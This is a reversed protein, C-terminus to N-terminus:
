MLQLILKKKDDDTLGKGDLLHFVMASRNSKRGYSEFVKEAQKNRPLNLLQNQIFREMGGRVDDIRESADCIKSLHPRAYQAIEWDYKTALHDYFDQYNPCNLELWIDVVKDFTSVDGKYYHLKLYRASKLKVIYWVGDVRYYWCVGEYGEFKAVAERMEELTSFSYRQPRSMNLKEAWRDIVDQPFISYDGHYIGGILWLKPEDGYNLVVKNNPSYWECLLSVDENDLVFQFLEPHRAKLIAIERGNNLTLEANVTGRTRVVLQGKFSSIILLSGDLKEMIDGELRGKRLTPKPYPIKGPIVNGDKDVDEDLNFFKPWGLSVPEGQGTWLSSRYILNSLDWKPVGVAVPEVLFCSEGAVVCPRLFFQDRNISTLDVKM